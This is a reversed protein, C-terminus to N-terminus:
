PTTTKLINAAIGEDPCVKLGPVEGWPVTHRACVRAVRESGATSAQMQANQDESAGNREPRKRSGTSLQLVEQTSM